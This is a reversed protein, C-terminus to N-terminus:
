VGHFNFQNFVVQIVEGAEIPALPCYLL